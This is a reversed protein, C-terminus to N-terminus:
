YPQGDLIVRKTCTPLVFDCNAPFAYDTFQAVKAAFESCHRAADGNVEFPRLFPIIAFRNQDMAYPKRHETELWAAFQENTIKLTVLKEHRIVSGEMAAEFDQEIVGCLTKDSNTTAHWVKGTYLFEIANHSFNIMAMKRFLLKVVIAIKERVSKGLKLTLVFQIWWSMVDPKPEGVWLFRVVALDDPKM